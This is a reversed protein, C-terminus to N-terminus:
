GTEAQHNRVEEFDQNGLVKWLVKAKRDERSRLVRDDGIGCRGTGLTVGMEFDALSLKKAM